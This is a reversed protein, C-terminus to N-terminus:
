GTTKSVRTPPARSPVPSFNSPNLADAEPTYVAAWGERSLTTEQAARTLEFPGYRTGIDASGARHLADVLSPPHSDAAWIANISQGLREGPELM